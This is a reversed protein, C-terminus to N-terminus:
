KLIITTDIIASNRDTEFSALPRSTIMVLSTGREEGVRCGSNWRSLREEGRGCGCLGGLFCVLCFKPLASALVCLQLHLWGNGLLYVSLIRMVHM